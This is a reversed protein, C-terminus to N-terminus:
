RARRVGSWSRSAGGRTRAPVTGGGLAGARAPPPLLRLRSRAQLRRVHPRLLEITAEAQSLDCARDQAAADSRGDDHLSGPPGETGVKPTRGADAGRDQGADERSGDQVSDEEKSESADSSLVPVRHEGLALIRRDDSSGQSWQWPCTLSSGDSSPVELRGWIVHHTVDDEELEDIRVSTADTM